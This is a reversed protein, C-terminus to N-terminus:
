QVLRSYNLGNFFKFKGTVFGGRGTVLQIYGIDRSVTM